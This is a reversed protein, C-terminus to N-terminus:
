PSTVRLRYFRNAAPVVNDQVIVTLPSGSGTETVNTSSWGAGGTNTAIGTWTAGNGLASVSEVILTVDCAGSNRHFLLAFTNNTALVGNLRALTDSQTPSSGTAYKLLNPYGDGTACQNYNTLGNTIAGIWGSFGGAEYAGLDVIGHAIRPNGDLDTSGRLYTYSNNGADICPSGPKLHYNGAAANIFQPDSSINNSGSGVPPAPSTCCYSVGVTAGFNPSAPSTNFYIISDYLTCFTTGGCDTSASNSSVTCGRLTSWGAGGCSVASNGAVLCNNLEANGVGGYNNTATNGIVRCNNLTGLDAGGCTGASNATVTCNSLTANFAGGGDGASNGTLLCNNLTGNQAGGGQLTASNGSLTCNNLLGYCVGGGGYFAWNGTLTCNYLASNGTAGGNGTPSTNGTLTCNNLTSNQAGGGRTSASNGTLTCNNLTGYSGGGGLDALNGTLTCNYLTSNYEGGGGYNATTALNGTLTCNTLTSDSVGGGYWGSSNTSLTCNNLIANEAGGGYYVASNNNLTCNTLAGNCAGGGHNVSLNGTLTCNALTGNFVGGGNPASNGALTCNNLTGQYAGGGYLAAANGTLVCDTIVVGRAYAGGGSQSLFYDGNTLTGGNALTFGTLAGSTMFVCRVATSGKPGQGLITTKAPGNLSQLTINNTIVVRNTLSGGPTVRGGVSYIGDAVIVSGGSITQADVAEQITHAASTWNTFPSAPSPSNIAVYRASAGATLVQINVTASVGGPHDNNYATLVVPYTGASNWAHNPYATDRVVTGDGFNWQNSDARGQILGAFPVVVNIVAQTVTASISVQLAGTLADSHIEDCGISPPNLWTEGDMDVGSTYSASGAGRCPSSAAVRWDTILRPDGTINNAGGAPLPMTCCDNLTCNNDYNLGTPATNNYVICNNLTANFAGGGDSASNATLTCNNLTDQCAGGGNIASNRTLVCNYLTTNFAGGGSNGASNATLTCNKVLAGVCVGGGNYAASNGTLTCNKLIGECAGGGGDNALNGTLTCNYLTTNYAGGGDYASNATLTCNTLTSDSAGGGDWASNGTLTCNTLTSDSAGGGDWASNGTLTCHNLAGSFVGGGANGSASNNNLTCNNLTGYCAGGGSNYASNGTLVCNTLVCGSAYAGGGSQDLDSNGSTMTFGNTLTFGILHCGNTLFVCRMANTGIPGQGQITTTTPGNVSQVLINNTIVVRNSLSGGPTVRAGAAYVGNSVLVFDGNATRDVGAQITRKATGWSTGAASDNGNTAVYWTAARASQHLLGLMLVVLALHRRTVRNRVWTGHLQAIHPNGTSPTVSATNKAGDRNTPM